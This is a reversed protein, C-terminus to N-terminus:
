RSQMGFTEVVWVSVIFAEDNTVDVPDMRGDGRVVVAAVEAPALTELRVTLDPGESTGRGDDDHCEACHVAYLEDGSAFQEADVSTDFTLPADM